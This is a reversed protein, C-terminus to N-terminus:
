SPEIDGAVEKGIWGILQGPVSNIAGEGTIEIGQLLYIITVVVGILKSFTDKLKIIINEFVVFINVTTSVGSDIISFIGDKSSSGLGLLGANNNAIQSGMQSLNKTLYIFPDLLYPMFNSNMNQTCYTFNTTADHGFISSFPMLIPNCRYLSWNDKINKIGIALVNFLQLSAFVIIIFISLLIDSAKM